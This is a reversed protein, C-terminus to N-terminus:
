APGGAKQMSEALSAATKRGRGICDDVSVGDVFNGALHIGPLASEVRTKLAAMREGHGVAYRPIVDSWSQSSSTQLEPEQQSGLALLLDRRARQPYEEPDLEALAESKYLCTVAASGQPARGEFIQSSFLMGLAKVEKPGAPEGPPILFGFAAPLLTGNPDSLGLHIVTIAAHRVAALDTLEPLEDLRDALLTHTRSAPLALVVHESAHSAGDAGLVRWGAGDARIATADFDLHLADLTGRLTQVLESLGGPFSLLGSAEARELPVDGGAEARKARMMSGVAKILSGQRQIAEWLKPFASKAGLESAEAAHVGRVFAGLFTRTAEAGIREAFFAELTPEAENPRPPFKKILGRLVRLKSGFSLLPTTLFQRGGTPLPRLRGRQYLCRVAAAPRSRLLRQELGAERTIRLFEAATAPVTNPGNEFVFDGTQPSTIVGGTTARAELVRVRAGARQLYFATALGTIGAGLVIVQSRAGQNESAPSTM